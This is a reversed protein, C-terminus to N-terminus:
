GFLHSTIYGTLMFSTGCVAAAWPRLRFSRGLFYGFAAGFFTHLVFTWGIARYLPMLFYLLTTPYFIPGPLLAVYPMGGYVHPTWLPVGRGSGIEDVFFQRLPYGELLMDTGFILREPHFVFDRYFWLTVVAAGALFLWVVPLDRRAEATESM